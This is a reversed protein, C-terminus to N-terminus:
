TDVFSEAVLDASAATAVVATCVVIQSVVDVVVVVLLLLLRLNDVVVLHSSIHVLRSAASTYGLLHLWPPRPRQAVLHAGRRSVRAGCPKHTPAWSCSYFGTCATAM